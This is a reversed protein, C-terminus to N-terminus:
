SLGGKWADIIIGMIGSYLLLLVGIVVPVGPDYIGFSNIMASVAGALAMTAGSAAVICLTTKIIKLM